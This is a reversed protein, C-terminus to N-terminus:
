IMFDKITKELDDTPHEPIGTFVLNDRMSRAQLDFITEKMNKNDTTISNLQTTLTNISQKLSKNESTLTDTQEQIYELSQHLSQFERHLVEILAIRNDLGTLKQEISLLM